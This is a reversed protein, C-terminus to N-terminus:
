QTINNEEGGNFDTQVLMEELGSHQQPTTTAEMSQLMEIQYPFQHQIVSLLANIATLGFIMYLGASGFGFWWATFIGGLSLLGLSVDFWRMGTNLFLEYLIQNREITRRQELLFWLLLLAVFAIGIALPDSIYFDPRSPLRPFRINFIIFFVLIILLSINTLYFLRMWYIGRPPRLNHLRISM